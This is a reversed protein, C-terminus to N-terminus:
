KKIQALFARCDDHNNPTMGNQLFGVDGVLSRLLRVAEDLEGRLRAAEASEKALLDSLRIMESNTDVRVEPWSKIEDSM